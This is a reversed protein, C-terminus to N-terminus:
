VTVRPRRRFGAAHAALGFEVACLQSHFPGYARWRLFRRSLVRRARYDGAARPERIEECEAELPKGCNACVPRVAPMGVVLRTNM